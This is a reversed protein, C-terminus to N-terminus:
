PTPPNSPNPLATGCFQPRPIPTADCFWPNPPSPAVFNGIGAYHFSGQARWRTKSIRARQQDPSGKCPSHSPAAVLLAFHLFRRNQPSNQRTSSPQPPNLRIAAPQPLNPHTFLARPPNLPPTILTSPASDPQRPPVPPPISGADDPPGLSKPFRPRRVQRHLRHAQPTPSGFPIPRNRRLRSQGLRAGDCTAKHQLRAAKACTARRSRAPRAPLSLRAPAGM